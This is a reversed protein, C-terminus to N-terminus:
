YLQVLVYISMLDRRVIEYARGQSQISLFGLHRGNGKFVFRRDLRPVDIM